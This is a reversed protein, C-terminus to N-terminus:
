SSENLWLVLTHRVSRRLVALRHSYLAKISATETIGYIKSAGSWVRLSMIGCLAFSSVVVPSRYDRTAKIGEDMSSHAQIRAAVLATWVKDTHATPLAM